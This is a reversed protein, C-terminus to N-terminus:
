RDNGGDSAGVAPPLAPTATLRWPPGPVHVERGGIEGRGFFPREAWQAYRPMDLGAGVPVVPIRLRQGREVLEAVTKDALYEELRRGFQEVDGEGRNLSQMQGTFDELGTMACADAWQRQTLTNIGIWGDRCRRVGFPAILIRDRSVGLDGRAEHRLSDYCLISQACEHLSVDASAPGEGARLARLLTLAGTAIFSGAAWEHYSGGVQVPWLDKEKRSTVLGAAAQLVLPTVPLGAYPGDDGWPSVNIFATGPHAASEAAGFGSPAAGEIVNLVVDASDILSRLMGASTDDNGLVVSRKRASLFGFVAAAIDDDPVRDPHGGRLPHGEQDEVIVVEAGLDALLKGAYPVAYNADGGLELVRVGDLATQHSM